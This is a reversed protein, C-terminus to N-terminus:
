GDPQRRFYALSLKLSEQIRHADGSCLSWESRNDLNLRSALARAQRCREHFAEHQYEFERDRKSRTSHMCAEVESILLAIEHRFEAVPHKNKSM